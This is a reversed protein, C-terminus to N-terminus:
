PLRIISVGYFIAGGKVRDISITTWSTNLHMPAFFSETLLDNAKASPFLYYFPLAAAQPATRLTVAYVQNSCSSPSFNGGVVCSAPNPASNAEDISRAKVIIQFKDTSNLYSRNIQLVISLKNLEAAATGTCQDIDSTVGTRVNYGDITYFNNTEPNNDSFGDFYACPTDSGTNAPTGSSSRTSTLFISASTLWAPIQSTSLSSGQLDFFRQAYITVGGSSPVATSDFSGQTGTRTIIQVANTGSYSTSSTSTSSSSTPTKSKTTSTNESSFPCGTLILTFAYILFYRFTRNM